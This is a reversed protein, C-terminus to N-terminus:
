FGDLTGDFSFSIAISIGDDGSMTLPVWFVPPWFQLIKCWLTVFFLLLLLLFPLLQRAALATYVNECQRALDPWCVTLAFTSLLLLLLLVDIAEGGRAIHLLERVYAMFHFIALSRTEM